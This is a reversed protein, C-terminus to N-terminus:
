VIVPEDDNFEEDYSHGRKPKEPADGYGDTTCIGWGGFKWIAFFVFLPLLFFLKFGFLWLMALGILAYGLPFRHRRYPYPRM